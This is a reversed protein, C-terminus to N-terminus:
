QNASIGLIHCRAPYSAAVAQEGRRRHFAHVRLGDGGREGVAETTKAAVSARPGASRALQHIREDTPGEVKDKAEPIASESREGIAEEAIKRPDTRKSDM